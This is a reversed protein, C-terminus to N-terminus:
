SGKRFPLNGIKKLADDRSDVVIGARVLAQNAKSLSSLSRGTAYEVSKLELPGITADIGRYVVIEDGYAGVYYQNTVWNYTYFVGTTTILALTIVVLMWRSLRPKGRGTGPEVSVRRDGAPASTSPTPFPAHGVDIRPPEQRIPPPQGVRPAAVPPRSPITLDFLHATSSDLSRLYLVPTGWELTGPLALRIAQRAEMVAVDVPLHEALSEYFAHGFEVAAPDSIPHQMALVAPMGTRMLSGAVSSFANDQSTRGTECANLVVLRLSPHGNLVMALDDAGLQRTGGYEDALVLTGQQTAGDFSGHGIFHFVHWPGGIASRLARRLDRWTQGAVWGLEIRGRAQLDAMAQHIRRREEEAAVPQQDDPRAIMCLIRLPGAVQLPRRPALVQPHRVLPSALCLYTEEGSDYLFEWPLRALTPANVHLVMRLRRDERAARQRSALLLARGDGDRSLLADFLLRGLRQVPIEEGVANRRVRASSAIVADPIRALLQELEAQPPLRLPTAAESGDPARVVVQYGGHEGSIEVHFDLVTM